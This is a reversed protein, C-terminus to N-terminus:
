LQYWWVCSCGELIDGMQTLDRTYEWDFEKYSSCLAMSLEGCLEEEFSHACTSCVLYLRLTISFVIIM